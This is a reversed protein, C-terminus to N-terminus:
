PRRDSDASKTKPKRGGSGLRPLSVLVRAEPWIHTLYQQESIGFTQMIEAKHADRTVSDDPKLKAALCVIAKQAPTETVPRVPKPTISVTAPVMRATGSHLDHTQFFIKASDLLGDATQIAIGGHRLLRLKWLDPLPPNIEVDVAELTDTLKARAAFKTYGNLLLTEFAAKISTGRHKSLPKYTM